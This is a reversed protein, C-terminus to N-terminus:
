EECKFSISVGLKKFIKIVTLSSVNGISNITQTDVSLISTSNLAALEWSVELHSFSMAMFICESYEQEIGGGFGHTCMNGTIYGQTIIM